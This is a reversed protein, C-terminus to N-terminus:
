TFAAATGTAAACFMLVSLQATLQDVRTFNSGPARHRLVSAMLLNLLNKFKMLKKLLTKRRKTIMQERSNASIRGLNM